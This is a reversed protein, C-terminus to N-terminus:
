HSFWSAACNEDVNTLFTKDTANLGYVVHKGHGHEGAGRDIVTNYVHYFISILYLANDFRYKYACEYTNEWITKKQRLYRETRYCNCLTKVTNPNKQLM